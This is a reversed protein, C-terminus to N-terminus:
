IKQLIYPKDTITDTVGDVLLVILLIIGLYLRHWPLFDMISQPDHDSTHPCCGLRKRDPCVKYPAGHFNAVDPFNMWKTQNAIASELAHRLRLKEYDSLRSASKRIRLRKGQKKCEPSPEAIIQICM